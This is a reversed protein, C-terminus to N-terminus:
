TYMESRKYYIVIDKIIRKTNNNNYEIKELNLEHMCHECYISM